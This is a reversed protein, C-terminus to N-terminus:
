RKTAPGHERIAGVATPPVATERKRTMVNDLVSQFADPSVSFEGRFPNDMAATLFILLAIFGALAGVLIAHLKINEIWFLYPLCICLGAGILVVAWLAAPLGTTVSQLRLNRQELVPDLSQIVEAHSIKERESNPEFSMVENEFGDLLQDGETVVLGKRHAPWDKEIVLRVYDRLKTELQSRLPEPYGDLDRYLASLTAAEKSILDDVQTFDSWTAVAILGLALGYLVWVAAVFYNVSDNERSSAGLFRRAWPRTAILGGVSLTVFLGVTLVCFLWNPLDYIWYMTM